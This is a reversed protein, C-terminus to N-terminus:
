LGGEERVLKVFVEELTASVKKLELLGWGQNVVVASLERRVDLGAEAEVLFASRQPDEPSQPSVRLVGPVAALRQSVQEAPGEVTLSIQTSGSVQATLNEPTDIAILKGENIIMVRQCTMSVEPLIHTSLIVTRQGAMDKILSRIEIIQQPDLGITPEDLILVPPENLLAQALGVRQRFGKSLKGVIRHAVPELGCAEVVLELQGKRRKKSIGKVEAVFNLYQRVTMESYLPVGQIGEPLYGIMRRVEIPNKAVDYGGVTAQGLSPPLFGTLIRMTTTKGAGNPGLFGVVEGKEVTFTVDKVATVPGFFKTLGQASIM